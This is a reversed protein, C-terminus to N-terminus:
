GRPRGVKGPNAVRESVLRVEPPSLQFLQPEDDHDFWKLTVAVSSMGVTVAVIRGVVDPADLIQAQDGVQLGFARAFADQIEDVPSAM